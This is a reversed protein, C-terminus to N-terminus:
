CHDTPSSREEGVDHVRPAGVSLSKIAQRGAVELGIGMGIPLWFTVWEWSPNTPLLQYDFMCGTTMAVLLCMPTIQRYNIWFKYSWYLCEALLTLMATGGILGGRILASLLINHPQDVVVGGSVVVEINPRIGFGFFPTHAMMALYDVWIEPRYSFGRTAIAERGYPTMLLATAAFVIGGLAAVRASQSLCRALVLASLIIALYASRAQTVLTGILLVTAFLGFLIRRWPISDDMMMALAATCYVAYTISLGTSNRAAPMGLTGILRFTSVSNSSFPVTTVFWAINIIVNVALTATCALMFYAFGRRSRVTLFATIIVFCLIMPSMRAPRNFMRQSIDPLLYSAICLVLLYISAAWFIRSTVLTRWAFPLVTLIALPMVVAVYLFTPADLENTLVISAFLVIYAAPLLKFHDSLRTLTAQAYAVSQWLTKADHLTSMEASFGGFNCSMRKVDYRRHETRGDCLKRHAETQLHEGALRYCPLYRLDVREGTSKGRERV